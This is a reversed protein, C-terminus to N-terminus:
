KNCVRGMHDLTCLLGEQNLEKVKGVMSDIGDGAVVQAAGLKLGWRKAAKNLLTNKSVHLFFDKLVKAFM